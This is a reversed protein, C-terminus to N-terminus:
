WQDRGVDDRNLGPLRLYKRDTVAHDDREREPAVRAVPLLEDCDVAETSGAFSM